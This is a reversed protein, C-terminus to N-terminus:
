FESRLFNMARWIGYGIIYLLAAALCVLVILGVADPMNLDLTRGGATLLPVTRPFVHHGPAALFLGVALTRTLAKPV